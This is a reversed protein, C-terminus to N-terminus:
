PTVFQERRLRSDFQTVLLSSKEAPDGGIGTEGSPRMLASIYTHVCFILGKLTERLKHSCSNNPM